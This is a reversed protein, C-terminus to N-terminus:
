HQLLSLDSRFIISEEGFVAAPYPHLAIRRNYVVAATGPRVTDDTKVM